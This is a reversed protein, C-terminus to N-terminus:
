GSPLPHPNNGQFVLTIAHLVNRGQKALTSLYSRITTFNQAGDLTRFCGSTKQKLKLKPMRIDREALNNDFPVDPDSLLRLVDDAHRHLRGLLHTATSQKVRGRKKGSAPLVPHLTEAQSLITEYEQRLASLVDSTLAAQDV